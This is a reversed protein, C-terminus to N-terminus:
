PLKLCAEILGKKSFHFQSLLSFMDEKGLIIKQIQKVPYGQKSLDKVKEALALIFDRKKTIDQKGNEMIGRHPCFATQFDLTLVHNLSKLQLALDEDKHLYRVQSAIYLDGTFLYGNERDYFCSMDDTHGPTLIVHLKVGNNSIFTDGLPSTEVAKASGWILKQIFPISYEEKVLAQCIPNTLVPIKLETAINAANGTHDEHHHTLLTHNIAHQQIFSKVFQWQNIPGTDICVDGHQYVVFTTNIGKNFRGVRLGKVSGHTVQEIIAM